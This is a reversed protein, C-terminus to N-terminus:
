NVGTAGPMVAPDRGAPDVGPRDRNADELSRLDLVAGALGLDRGRSLATAVPVTGGATFETAWAQGRRARLLAECAARSPVMKYGKPNCPAVLAAFSDLLPVLQEPLRRFNDNMVLLSRRRQELPPQLHAVSTRRPDDVLEM